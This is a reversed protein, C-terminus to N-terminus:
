EQKESASGYAYLTIPIRESYRTADLQVDFLLHDKHMGRELTSVSACQIRHSTASESQHEAIFFGHESRVNALVLPADGRVTVTGTTDGRLHLGSSAQDLVVTYPAIIKGTALIRDTSFRKLDTHLYVPIAFDGASMTAALTATIRYEKRGPQKWASETVPEVVLSINGDPEQAAEEPSLSASLVSVPLDTCNRLVVAATATAGKEVDGFNFAEPELTYEPEVRAEVTLTIQPTRPDNSALTLTKRSHFGYIGTPSVAVTLPSSEGPAILNKGADFFGLTCLKCSSLVAHVDLMSGGRNYVLIEKRTEEDNPIVGLDLHDSDLAIEPAEEISIDIPPALGAQDENLPVYEKHLTTAYFMLLTILAILFVAIHRMRIRM